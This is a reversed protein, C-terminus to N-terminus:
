LGLIDGIRKIEKLGDGVGKVTGRVQQPKASPAWPSGSVQIYLAAQDTLIDVASGFVPLKGLAGTLSEMIHFKIMVDTQDKPFDITGEAQYAHSKAVLNFEEIIAFGQNFNLKGATTDFNLGKDKINPVRMRIIETTRLLGLLRTAFGMKGFSGKEGVFASTGNLGNFLGPGLPFQLDAHGSMTGSVEQTEDYIMADLVSMDAQDAKLNLTIDRQGSQATRLLISGTIGGDGLRCQIDNFRIENGTTQIRTSANHVVGRRLYIEKVAVTGEGEYALPAASGTTPTTDATEPTEAMMQSAGYIAMVTNLDLKDGEVKAQWQKGQLRANITCDSHAGRMVLNDVAWADGSYAVRGNLSDVQFLPPKNLGADNFTLQLDMPASIFTGSVQGRAQAGETLIPTLAALNLNFPETNIGADSLTFKVSQDLCTVQGRQPTWTGASDMSGEVNISASQGVNKRLIPDMGLMAQDLQADMSWTGQSMAGDLTVIATGEAVMGEPLFPQALELPIPANIAITDLAMSDGQAKFRALVDVMPSDTRTVKIEMGPNSDTPLQVRLNLFKNKYAALLGSGATGAAGEPLYDAALQTLDGALTGQLTRTQQNLGGDWVLVGAKASTAEVSADIGTDTNKFTAAVESLTDPWSPHTITAKGNRLKGQVKLDEPLAGGLVYTGSLTTLELDGAVDKLPQGALVMAAIGSALNLKGSLNLAMTSLDDSPQVTGNISLGAGSVKEMHLAGDRLTITGNIGDDALTAALAPDKLAPTVKDLAAVLVLDDFSGALAVSGALEKLQITGTVGTVTDQPLWPRLDLTGLDLHGSGSVSAIGTTWDPDVQGSFHFGKAEMADIQLTDEKILITGHIDPVFPKGQHILSFGKLTIKGRALRMAEEEYGVSTDTILIEGADAVTMAWEAGAESQLIDNLLPGKILTRKLDLMLPNFTTNASVEVNEGQAVVDSVILAGERWWALATYTAVEKGEYQLNGALDLSIDDVGTGSCTAETDVMVAPIREDKMITQLNVFRSVMTGQIADDGGAMDWHVDVAVKAEDGLMPVSLTGSLYPKNVGIDSVGIDGTMLPQAGQFVSLADIFVGKVQVVSATDSEAKTKDAEEAEAARHDMVAQVRLKTEEMTGPLYVTLENLNVSEVIVTGSLIKSLSIAITIDQAEVRFDGEGLQLSAVSARPTPFPTLGLKGLTVPLGTEKELAEIIMPRYQDIDAYRVVVFWAAVVLVILILLFM